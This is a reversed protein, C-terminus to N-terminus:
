EKHELYKKLAETLNIKFDKGDVRIMEKNNNSFIIMITYYDVLRDGDFKIIVSDGNEKIKELCLILEEISVNKELIKKIEM